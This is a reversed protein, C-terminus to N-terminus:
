DWGGIWMTSTSEDVGTLIVGDLVEGGLIVAGAEDCGKGLPGVFMTSFSSKAQSHKPSATFSSSM